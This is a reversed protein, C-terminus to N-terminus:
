IGFEYNFDVMKWSTLNSTKVTTVIFFATEPQPAKYIKHSGINRLLTDGGGEPYFFRRFFFWRSCIAAIQLWM